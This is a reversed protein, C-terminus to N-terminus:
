VLWSEYGFTAIFVLVLWFKLIRAQERSSRIRHM